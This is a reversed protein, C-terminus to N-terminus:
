WGMSKLFGKSKRHRRFGAFVQLLHCHSRTSKFWRLCLGASKCDAGNSGTLLTFIVLILAFQSKGMLGGNTTKACHKARNLSSVCVAAPAGQCTMTLADTTFTQGKESLAAGQSRPTNVIMSKDNRNLTLQGTDSQFVGRRPDTKNDASLVGSRRLSAIATDLLNADDTSQPTASPIM